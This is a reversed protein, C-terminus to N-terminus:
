AMRWLMLGGLGVLALAGPEPVSQVSESRHWPWAHAPPIGPMCGCYPNARSTRTDPEPISYRERHDAHPLSRGRLDVNPDPLVDRQPYPLVCQRPQACGCSNACCASQQVCCGGSGNGVRAAIIMLSVLAAFALALLAGILVGVLRAKTVAGPQLERRRNRSTYEGQMETM